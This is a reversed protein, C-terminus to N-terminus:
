LRNKVACDSDVCTLMHLGLNTASKIHNRQECTNPWTSPQKKSWTLAPKTQSFFLCCNLCDDESQDNTTKSRTVM